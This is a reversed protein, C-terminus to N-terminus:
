VYLETEIFIRDKKSRAGVSKLRGKGHGRLSLVDGEKVPADTRECPLDNLKAEGARILEAASTRSMGFMAGAVADLRLSKVTCAHTKVRVVPVPVDSLACAAASVGVRGVKDLEDLLLTQVAPLCFVYATEGIIRIDGLAERKVGLGLIAGLYDRHGPVGFHAEIRVARIHDDLAVDDPEMYDPLFFAIKREGDSQGGDLLLRDSKCYQKLAAQEAATLFATKTLVGRFEARNKLDDIRKLFSDQEM